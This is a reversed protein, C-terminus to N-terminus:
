VIRRQHVSGLRTLPTGTIINKIGSSYFFLCLGFCIVLQAFSISDFFAVLNTEKGTGGESEGEREKQRNQKKNTTAADVSKLDRRYPILHCKRRGCGGAQGALHGECCKQWGNVSSSLALCCCAPLSLPLSFASSIRPATLLEMETGDIGNGNGFAKVLFGFFSVTWFHQCDGMIFAEARLVAGGEGERGDKFFQEFHLNHFHLQLEAQVM